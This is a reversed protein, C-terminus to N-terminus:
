YSFSVIAVVATVYLSPDIVNSASIAETPSEDPATTIAAVSSSNGYRPIANCQIQKEPLKQSVIGTESIVLSPLQSLSDETVSDSGQVPQWDEGPVGTAAFKVWRKLLDSSIAVDTETPPFRAPGSFTFDLNGFVIPIEATHAALGDTENIGAAAIVAKAPDNATHHTFAYHYVSGSVGNAALAAMDRGGCRFLLDGTYTAYEDVDSDEDLEEESYVEIIEDVISAGNDGHTDRIHSEFDSGRQVYLSPPFFAMMPDDISTAGIIMDSPNLLGERYLDIPMRPMISTDTASNVFSMGAASLLEDATMNVKLEEISTVGSDELLKKTRESGAEITVPTLRDTLCQGSQVIARHFLGKAKPSVSLLCVSAGGASEGFITVRQPDGGFAEINEQVWELAIIQDGLFNMGGGGTEYDTVLLGFVGLRYNLTIVIPADAGTLSAALNSGDYVPESGSGAVYGGGHIWVMVPRSVYDNNSINNSGPMAQRWINLFLCDERQPIALPNPPGLTPQYCNWGYSTANIITSNSSGTTNEPLLPLLTSPAFREAAQAYRIGLFSEVIVSTGNSSSSNKEIKQGAIQVPTGGNSTLNVQHPQPQQHQQAGVLTVYFISGFLLLFSFFPLRRRCMTM